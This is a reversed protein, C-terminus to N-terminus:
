ILSQTVHTKSVKLLITWLAVVNGCRWKIINGCFKYSVDTFSDNRVFQCRWYLCECSKTLVNHCSKQTQQTRSTAKSVESHWVLFHFDKWKKQLNILKSRLWLHSPPKWRAKTKNRIIKNSEIDDFFVPFIYFKNKQEVFPM